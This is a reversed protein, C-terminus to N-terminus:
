HGPATRTAELGARILASVTASTSVRLGTREVLERRHQQVSHLLSPEATVTLRTLNEHKDINEM